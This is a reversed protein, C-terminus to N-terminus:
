VDEWRKEASPDDKRITALARSWKALTLHRSWLIISYIPNLAKRQFDESIDPQLGQTPMIMGIGRADGKFDGVM